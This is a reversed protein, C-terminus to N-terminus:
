LESPGGSANVLIGFGRGVVLGLLATVGSIVAASSVAYAVKLLPGMTAVPVFLNLTFALSPGFALIWGGAYTGCRYTYAAVSATILVATGNVIASQVATPPEANGERLATLIAVFVLFLLASVGGVM